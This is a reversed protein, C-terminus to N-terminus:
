LKRKTCDELAIFNLWDSVGVRLYVSYQTYGDFLSIESMYFDPRIKTGQPENLIKLDALQLNILGTRAYIYDEVVDRAERYAKVFGRPNNEAWDKTSEPKASLYAWEEIEYPALIEGESDYFNSGNYYGIKTNTTSNPFIETVLKLVILVFKDPCEEQLTQWNNLAM